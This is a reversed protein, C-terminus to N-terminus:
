RDGDLNHRDQSKDLGLAQFERRDPVNPPISFLVWMVPLSFLTLVGNAVGLAAFSFYGGGIFQTTTFNIISAGLALVIFAFLSAM